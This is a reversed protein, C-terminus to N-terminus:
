IRGLKECERTGGLAQRVFRLSLYNITFVLSALCSATAFSSVRRVRQVGVSSVTGSLPHAGPVPSVLSGIARVSTSTTSAASSVPGASAVQRERREQIRRMRDAKGADRLQKRMLEASAITQEANKKITEKEAACERNTLQCKTERTKQCTIVTYTKHSDSQYTYIASVQLLLGLV